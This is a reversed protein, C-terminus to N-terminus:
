KMEFIKSEQEAKLEEIMSHIKRPGVELLLMENNELRKYYGFVLYAMYFRGVFSILAYAWVGAFVYQSHGIHEEIHVQVLVSLDIAPLVFATVVSYIYYLKFM